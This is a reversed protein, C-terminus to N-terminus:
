QGTEMKKILSSHGGGASIQLIEEEGDCEERIVHDSYLDVKTPHLVRDSTVNGIALRGEGTRGTSYVGSSTTLILTHSGGASASKVKLGEGM